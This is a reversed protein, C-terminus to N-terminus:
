KAEKSYIPSGDTAEGIILKDDPRLADWLYGIAILANNIEVPANPAWYMAHPDTEKIVKQFKYFELSDKKNMRARTSM